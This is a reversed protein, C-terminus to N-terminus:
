LVGFGGATTTQKVQRRLEQWQAYFTYCTARELSWSEDHGGLRLALGVGKGDNGDTPSYSTRRWSSYLWLVGFSVADDQVRMECVRCALPLLPGCMWARGTEACTAAWDCSVQLVLVAPCYSSVAARSM